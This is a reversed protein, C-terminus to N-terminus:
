YEQYIDQFHFFFHQFMVCVRKRMLDKRKQELEIELHALKDDMVEEQTLWFGVDGLAESGESM